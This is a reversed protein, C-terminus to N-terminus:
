HYGRDSPGPDGGKRGSTRVLPVSGYGGSAVFRQSPLYTGSNGAKQIQFTQTARSLEQIRIGYDLYLEFPNTAFAIQGAQHCPDRDAHQSQIAAFAVAKACKKRTGDPSTPPYSGSVVMKTQQTNGPNKNVIEHVLRTFTEKHPRAEELLACCGKGPDDQAATGALLDHAPHACRERKRCLPDHRQHCGGIRKAIESARHM